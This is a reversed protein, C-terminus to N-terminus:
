GPRASNMLGHCLRVGRNAASRRPGLPPRKEADLARKAAAAPELPQIARGAIHRKGDGLSVLDGIDHRADQRPATDAHVLRRLEQRRAEPRQHGVRGHHGVHLGGRRADGIRDHGALANGDEAIVIDVACRRRRQQRAEQAMLPEVRQDIDGIAQELAVPRVRFRQARQGPLAGAQDHRDVTAGGAEFREGLGPRKADIDHHDVMVLKAGLPRRRDGHDIGVALVIEGAEAGQGGDADGVHRHDRDVTQEPGAAPVAGVTGLRVEQAPEVQDREARDAIHHREGPEVPSKHGLSQHGEIAPFIAPERREGVHRPQAPRCRGIM